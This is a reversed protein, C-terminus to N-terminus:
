VKTGDTSGEMWKDFLDMEIFLASLVYLPSPFIFEMMILGEKEDVKHYIKANHKMLDEHVFEEMYEM